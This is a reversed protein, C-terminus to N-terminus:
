VVFGGSRVPGLQARHRRLCSEIAQQAHLLGVPLLQSISSASKRSNSPHKVAWWTSNM